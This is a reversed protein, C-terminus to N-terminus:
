SRCRPATRRATVAPATRSGRRVIRAEAPARLKAEAIHQAAVSNDAFTAFGCDPTVLVREAGLIAVARRIREAIEDETEM